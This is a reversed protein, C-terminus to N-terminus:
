FFDYGTTKDVATFIKGGIDPLITLEIYDNELVIAKYTKNFKEKGPTKIVVANPYPNRTFRQHVRNEAFMPLKEAPAEPYTPIVLKKVTVKTKM